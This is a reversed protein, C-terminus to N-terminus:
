YIDDACKGAFLHAGLLEVTVIFLPTTITKKKTLTALVCLWHACGTAAQPFKLVPQGPELVQILWALCGLAPEIWELNIGLYSFM